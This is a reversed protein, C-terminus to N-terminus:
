DYLDKRRNEFVPNATRINQIQEKDIQAYLLEEKEEGLYLRTGDPAFGTSRGMYHEKSYHCCGLVYMENEIARARLLTEWQMFKGKGKVWAAPYLMVQTGSLAEYRALEPFRLDYCIGLGIVGVPTKIPTFLCDGKLTNMSEKWKYANFLHTKKYDSVLEGLDNLIVMTNYNKTEDVTQENMGFIIWMKFEKALMKMAQVFEGHLSQAKKTYNHEADPYYNMFYEPFIIMVAEEETAKKIYQKAKEINEQHKDESVEYYNGGNERFDGEVDSVGYPVFAAAPIQGARTVNQVIYNRDIALTLAQRVKPDKLVENTCNIM